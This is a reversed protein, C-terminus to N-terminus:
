SLQQWDAAADELMALRATWLADAYFRCSSLDHDANKYEFSTM